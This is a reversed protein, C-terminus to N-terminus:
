AQEGAVAPYGHWTAHGLAPFVVILGVLGIFRTPRLAPLAIVGCGLMPRLNQATMVFSLGTSAKELNHHLKLM